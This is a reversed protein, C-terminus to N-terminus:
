PYPCEKKEYKTKRTGVYRVELEIKKGYSQLRSFFDQEEADDNVEICGHTGKEDGGHIYMGTRIVKLCDKMRTVTSAYPELPVRHLGWDVDPEPWTEIRSPDVAFLGQPTPGIDKTAENASEDPPGSFGTWSKPQSGHWTLTYGDFTLRDAAATSIPNAVVLDFVDSNKKSLPEVRLKRVKFKKKPRM